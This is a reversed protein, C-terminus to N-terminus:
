LTQLDYMGDPAEIALGKGILDNYDFHNEILWNYLYNLGEGDENLDVIYSPKISPKCPMVVTVSFRKLQWFTDKEKETMSSLPRLYLFIYGNNINKILKDFDVDYINITYSETYKGSCDKIFLGYPLRSCIEKLIINNNM